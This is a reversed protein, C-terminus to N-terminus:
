RNVETITGSYGRLAAVRELIWRIQYRRLKHIRKRLDAMLADAIARPDTGRAVLNTTNM